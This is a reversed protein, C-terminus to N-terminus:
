YLLRVTRSASLGQTDASTYRADDAAGCRQWGDSAFYFYLTICLCCSHASSRHEEGLLWLKAPFLRAGSVLSEYNLIIVSIRGQSMLLLPPLAQAQDFSCAVSHCLFQRYRAWYVAAFCHYVVNYQLYLLYRIIVVFLSLVTFLM